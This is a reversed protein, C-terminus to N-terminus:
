ARWCPQTNSVISSTTCHRTSACAGASANTGAYRQRHSTGSACGTQLLGWKGVFGTPTQTPPSHVLSTFGQDAPQVKHHNFFLCYSTPTCFCADKPSSDSAQWRLTWIREKYRETDKRTSGPRPSACTSMKAQAIPTRSRENDSFDAGFCPPLTIKHALLACPLKKQSSWINSDEEINKTLKRKHFHTFISQALCFSEYYRRSINIQTM